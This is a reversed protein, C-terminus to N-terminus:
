AGDDLKCIHSSGIFLSKGLSSYREREDVVVSESSILRTVGSNSWAGRWMENCLMPRGFPNDDREKVVAREVSERVRM